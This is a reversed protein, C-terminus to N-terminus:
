SESEIQREGRRGGANAEVEESNPEKKDPKSLEKLRTEIDLIIETIHREMAYINARGDAVEAILADYFADFLSFMSKIDGGKISSIVSGRVDKPLSRVYREIGYEKIEQYIKRSIRLKKRCLSLVQKLSLLLNRLDSQSISEGELLKIVKKSGLIVDYVERLTANVKSISDRLKIGDEGEIYDLKEL